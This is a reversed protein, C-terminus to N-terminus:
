ICNSTSVFSNSPILSMAFLGALPHNLYLVRISYLGLVQASTCVGYMCREVGFGGVM